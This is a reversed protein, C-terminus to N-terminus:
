LCNLTKIEIRASYNWGTITHTPISTRVCVFGFAASAKSTLTWRSRRLNTCALRIAGNHVKELKAKLTTYPRIDLSDVTIRNTAVIRNAKTVTLFTYAVAATMTVGGM